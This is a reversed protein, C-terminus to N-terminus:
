GNVAIGNSPYLKSWRILTIGEVAIYANEPDTAENERIPRRPALWCRRGSQRGWVVDFAVHGLHTAAPM